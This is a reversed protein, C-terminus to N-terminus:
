SGDGIRRSLTMVWAACSIQRSISASVARRRAVRQRSLGPEGCQEADAAVRYALRQAHQVPEAIDLLGGAAADDDGGRRRAALAHEVLAHDDLRRRDGVVHARVDRLFAGLKGRRPQRGGLEALHLAGQPREFGGDRALVHVGGLARMVGKM